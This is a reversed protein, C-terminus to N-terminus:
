RPRHRAPTGARSIPGFRKTAGTEDTQLDYHASFAPNNATAAAVIVREGSVQGSQVRVSETRSIDQARWTLMAPWVRSDSRNRECQPTDVAQPLNDVVAALKCGGTGPMVWRWRWCDTSTLVGVSAVMAGVLAIHFRREGDADILYGGAGPSYAATATAVAADRRLGGLM